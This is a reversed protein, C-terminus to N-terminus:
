FVLGARLLGMPGFKASRIGTGRGYPSGYALAEILWAQRRGIRGLIEFGGRLTLHRTAQAHNWYGFGVGAVPRFGIRSDPNVLVKTTLSADFLKDFALNALDGSLGISYADTVMFDVGFGVSYNLGADGSIRPPNFDFSYNAPTMIGGRVEGAVVRNDFVTGIGRSGMAPQPATAGGAPPTVVPAPAPAPPMPEPAVPPEAVPEAPKPAPHEPAAAPPEAAVEAPKPAPQEPTVAPPPAAPAPVAVAPPPPAPKPAAAVEPAAHAAGSLGMRQALPARIALARLRGRLYSAEKVSQFGGAYVRVAGPIVGIPVWYAPIGRRGWSAVAANAEAESKYTGLAFALYTLRVDGAAARTKKGETVLKGMLAFAAHRDPLIGALLRYTVGGKVAVPAIYWPTGDGEHLALASQARALSPFSGVQVSYILDVDKGAQAAAARPVLAILCGLLGAAARM